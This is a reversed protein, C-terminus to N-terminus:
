MVQAEILMAFDKDVDGAAVEIGGTRDALVHVGVMRLSLYRGMFISSSYLRM